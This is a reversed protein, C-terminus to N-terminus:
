RNPMQKPMIKKDIYYLIKIVTNSPSTFYLYNFNNNNRTCLKGDIDTPYTTQNLKDLNFNIVALVIM